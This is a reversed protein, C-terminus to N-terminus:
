CKRIVDGVKIEGGQMVRVYIGRLKLHRRSKHNIFRLADQGFRAAFKKCGMHPRPTVELIVEGIQLQTGEPLNEESLDLDAVLNDGALPMRSDDQAVHRLIRSNMLTLQGYRDPDQDASLAWRDGPLGGEVTMHASDLVQRENSSPRAVILELRGETAPSAAVEPLFAAVQEETLHTI